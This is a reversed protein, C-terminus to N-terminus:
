LICLRRIQLRDFKIVLERRHFDDVVAMRDKNLIFRSAANGHVALLIREYLKMKMMRALFFYITLFEVHNKMQNVHMRISADHGDGDQQLAAILVGQNSVDPAMDGLFDAFFGLELFNHDVGGIQQRGILIVKTKVARECDRRAAIHLPEDQFSGHLKGRCLDCRECSQIRIIGAGNLWRVAPFDLLAIERLLFGLGAPILCPAHMREAPRM